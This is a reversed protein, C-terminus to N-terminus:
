AVPCLIILLNDFSSLIALAFNCQIYVSTARKVQLLDTLLWGSFVLFLLFDLASENYRILCLRLSSAEGRVVKHMNNDAISEQRWFYGRAGYCSEVISFGLLLRYYFSVLSINNAWTYPVFLVVQLIYIYVYEIEVRSCLTRLRFQISGIDAIIEQYQDVLSTCKLM